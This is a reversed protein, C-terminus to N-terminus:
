SARMASRHGVLQELLGVLREACTRDPDLSPDYLTLAVGLAKPHGVLPGLFEGLEDLGPGGPEPSGVAPMVVPDLVDADVLIWFGSVDSPGVRDLTPAAIAAPRGRRWDPDAIDLIGSLRLAEHGYSPQSGDRRGILAVHDPRVLPAPGALRALPSDGHGVALALGMSAVSGTQSQEPTAFDAHADVYALGVQGDHRRAGLLCGLVISCDGGLVVVLRGDDLGLAIRDALSRSYTAVGVENRARGPPRIFDEYPPPVVDGLDAADLRALLGLERLVGPAREVQQAEGSEDDPRLGISSPAGVVAVQRSM